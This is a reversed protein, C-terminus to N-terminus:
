IKYFHEVEVGAYMALIKLTLVDPVSYGNLISELKDISILIGTKNGIERTLESVSMNNLIRKINKKIIERTKGNDDQSRGLLYDLSVDFYDAMRILLEFKPERKQAEYAAIASRSIGFIKALEKQSLNNNERLKKLNIGFEM